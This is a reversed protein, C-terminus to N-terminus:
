RNNKLIIHYLRPRGTTLSTFPMTVMFDISIYIRWSLLKTSQKEFIDAYLTYAPRPLGASPLSVSMDTDRASAVMRYQSYDGLSITPM